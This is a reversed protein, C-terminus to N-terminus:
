VSTSLPDASIDLALRSIPTNCDITITNSATSVVQRTSRDILDVQSIWNGCTLNALPYNESTGTRVERTTTNTLTWVRDWTGTGVITSLSDTSGQTFVTKQIIKNSTDRVVIDIPMTSKDQNPQCQTYRLIRATM